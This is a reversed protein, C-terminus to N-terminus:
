KSPFFSAQRQFFFVQTIIKYTFLYMFYHILYIFSLSCAYCGEPAAWQLRVRLLQPLGPDTSDLAADVHGVALFHFGLLKRYTSGSIDQRFCVTPSACQYQSMCKPRHPGKCVSACHVILRACVTSFPLISERTGLSCLLRGAGVRLRWGGDRLGSDQAHGELPQPVPLATVAPLVFGAPGADVQADGHADLAGADVPVAWESMRLYRREGSLEGARQSNPWPVSQLTGGGGGVGGGPLSHDCVPPPFLNYKFM